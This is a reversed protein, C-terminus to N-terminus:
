TLGQSLFEIKVLKENLEIKPRGSAGWKENLEIEPRGGARWFGGVGLFDAPEM